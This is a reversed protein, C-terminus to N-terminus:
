TSGLSAVLHRWIERPVVASCVDTTHTQSIEVFQQLAVDLRPRLRLQMVINPMLDHRSNEGLRSFLSTVFLLTATMVTYM